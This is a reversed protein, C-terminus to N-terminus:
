ACRSTKPPRAFQKRARSTPTRAFTPRWFVQGNASELRASKFVSELEGWDAIGKHIRPDNAGNPRIVLRHAPFACGRAFSEAEAWDGTLVHAFTAKGHARAVVELANVDDIWILYEVNWPFLGMMPDPGFAGESALGLPLGSQTMGIRAKRRAAEIQTGARPIERTFTGLQDTDYGSVRHLRCGVAAELVPGIVREKGHQTLLAVARDRYAAAVGTNM